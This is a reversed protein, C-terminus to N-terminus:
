SFSTSFDQLAFKGCWKTLHFTESPQLYASLHRVPHQCLYTRCRLAARKGVNGAHPDPSSSRSRLEFLVIISSHWLENQHLAHPDSYYHISITWWTLGSQLAGPCGKTSLPVGRARRASSVTYPSRGLLIGYWVDRIMDVAGVTNWAVDVPCRCAKIKSLVVFM